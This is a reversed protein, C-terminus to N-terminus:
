GGPIHNSAIADVATQAIPVGDCECLAGYSDGGGQDTFYTRTKQLRVFQERHDAEGGGGGGDNPEGPSWNGTLPTGDFWIWSQDPQTAARLQVAGLWAAGGALTAPATNVVQAAAKIEDLTNLVALHTANPLDAACATSQDWISHGELILRYHSTGPLTTISYSAPCKAPDFAGSDPSSVTPVEDAAPQAQFGCGAIVAIWVVRM